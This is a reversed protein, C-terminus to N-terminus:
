QDARLDKNLLRGWLKDFQHVERVEISDRVVTRGENAWKFISGELNAVNTHGRDQLQKAVSSSRYGVSCYTIVRQDHAVDDLLSFDPNDPDIRQAGDLHSVAYEEAKRADLLIINENAELLRALSDTSIQEVGPFDNRVKDLTLNWASDQTCGTNVFPSAFLLPVLLIKLRRILM